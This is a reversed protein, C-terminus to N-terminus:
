TRVTRPANATVKRLEQRLRRKIQRDYIIILRSDAEVLTDSSLWTKDGKAV